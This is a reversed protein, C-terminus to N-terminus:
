DSKSFHKMDLAFQELEESIPRFYYLALGSVVIFSYLILFEGSLMFLILGFIGVSQSIAICIILASVYRSVTQNYVLLFPQKFGILINRIIILISSMPRTNLLFKKLFYATPLIVCTIVSLTAVVVWVTFDDLKAGINTGIIHGIILYIVLSSLFTAWLIRMVFMARKLQRREEHDLM